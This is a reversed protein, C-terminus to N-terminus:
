INYVSPDVNEQIYLLKNLEIIDSPKLNKNMNLVCMGLHKDVVMKHVYSADIIKGNSIANKTIIGRKHTVSNEDRPISNYTVIDEDYSFLKSYNKDADLQVNKVSINELEIKLAIVGFVPYKKDGICGNEHALFIMRKAVNKVDEIDFLVPIKKSNTETLRIKGVSQSLDLHYTDINKLNERVGFDTDYILYYVNIKDHKDGDRNGGRINGKIGGKIGGWIGSGTNGFLKELRDNTYTAM